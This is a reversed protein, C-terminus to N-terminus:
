QVFACGAAICPGGWCIEQGDRRRWAGASFRIQACCLGVKSGERRKFCAEYRKELRKATKPRRGSVFVPAQGRGVTMLTNDLLVCSWDGRRDRPRVSSSDSGRFATMDLAGPRDTTSQANHKVSQM